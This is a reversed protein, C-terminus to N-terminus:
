PQASTLKEIKALIKGTECDPKQEGPFVLQGCDVCYLGCAHGTAVSYAYRLKKAAEKYEPTEWDRPGRDIGMYGTM